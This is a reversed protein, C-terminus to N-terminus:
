DAGVGVDRLCRLVLPVLAEPVGGRPEDSILALYELMDIALRNGLLVPPAELYREVLNNFLNRVFAPHASYAKAMPGKPIALLLTM